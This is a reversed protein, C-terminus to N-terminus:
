KSERLGDLLDEKDIDIDCQTSNELEKKFRYLPAGIRVELSDELKDSIKAWQEKTLQAQYPLAERVKLPLQDYEEKSLGVKSWRGVQNHIQDIFVRKCRSLFAVKKEITDYKVPVTVEM